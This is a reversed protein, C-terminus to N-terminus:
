GIRLYILIYQMELISLGREQAFIREIVYAFILSNSLTILFLKQINGKLKRATM